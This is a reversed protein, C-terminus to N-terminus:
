LIYDSAYSTHSVHMFTNNFKRKDAMILKVPYYNQGHTVLPPGVKAERDFRPTIQLLQLSSISYNNKRNSKLKSAVM